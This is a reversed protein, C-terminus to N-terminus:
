RLFMFLREALIFVALLLRPLSVLLGAALFVGGLYAGWKRRAASVCTLANQNPESEAMAILRRVRREVGVRDDGLLAAGAPLVPAKVEPTLRAVKILAAALNLAGAKDGRTARDDAATEAEAAWARALTRSSPLMAFIDFCVRMMGLKFHDYAALHAAEHKLAAELESDDLNNLVSEAIFLRPRFVGVVALVPFPHAFRFAPVGLGDIAIKEAHGLWEATLRRTARRSVIVRWTTLALGLAAITAMVAIKLSIVEDAPRPEYALYSPLFLALAITLASLMPFLRIAFLLRARGPAPWTRARQGFAFWLAAAALSAILNVTLLGALALCIILWGNM